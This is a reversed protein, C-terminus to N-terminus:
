SGARNPLQQDLLKALDIRDVEMQVRHDALKELEGIKVKAKLLATRKPGPFFDALAELLATTADAIAEGALGRGFEEDTIQKDDIQPQCIAWLVEALLIPDSYLRNLLEGDNDFVALLDIGDETKQRVRRVTSVDLEVLWSRGARDKFSPM